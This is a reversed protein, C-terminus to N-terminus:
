IYNRQACHLSKRGRARKGGHSLKLLEKSVALLPDPIHVILLCRYHAPNITPLAKKEMKYPIFPM